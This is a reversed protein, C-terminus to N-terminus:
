LQPYFSFYWRIIGDGAFMAILAGATLFSGFPLAYKMDGKGTVMMAVGALSGLFSSLVLTLLMLPWGLFAGLMGLMKVDGMGLGHEGRWRFYAEAILLLVGGGTVIGILSSLWGPETVLSFVFGVVIGPLTIANPLIRHELDIVFLAILAAALITRSALLWGPEWTAAAAAFLVATTIEMVPYVASIPTRCHRCRGGLAAYSLVPINDRWALHYGCEECASPPYVVSQQRPLRYACVGLFSGVVLGLLGMVWPLALEVNM